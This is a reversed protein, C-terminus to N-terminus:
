KTAPERKATDIKSTTPAIATTNTTPAPSAVQASVPMGPDFIEWEAHATMLSSAGLLLATALLIKM